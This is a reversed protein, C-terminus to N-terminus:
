AAAAGEVSAEFQAAPLFITFETGQGPQSKVEIRGGHDAIIGHVVSLGLGTGEGVNKTTFFPDFIREKTEADMGCGTDVVRIRVFDGDQRRNSRPSAGSLNVTITGLASGIAQRANTVLNVIVQQLQGADAFVLPVDEIEESILVTAPITPRLMQLAQRITSALDVKTKAAKQNRSFALIRQVLDRGHRSAQVVTELDDRESSGEPMQQMLLQSLALIPMLTNNLDHAIGGALTGLAELKQSHLLQRELETQREEAERAETVDRITGIRRVPNGDDDFITEIETYIWKTSGDHCRFRYTLPSAQLGQESATMSAEYGARDDPHIRPLFEQKTPAPMQPDFGFIRYFEESGSVEGTRFDRNFSGIKALRQARNLNDRSQRLQDETLKMQTIDIHLAAIGGNQMRRLSIMVYRGDALPQEIVGSPRNFTNMRNALWEPECGVADAYWGADLGAWLIEEFPTGPVMLRAAKPYLRRYPENCMVFCDNRDYIVFGESISDVADRLTAQIERLKQEAEKRLAIDAKLRDSAAQFKDREDALAIEHSTRYRIERILYAALGAVLFTALCAIAAIVRAHERSSALAEALDSGVTVVLPYNGVRRYSFLRTVHDIISEKIFSGEGNAPIVGTWPHEVMQGIGALGHPDQRTFRARVIDDLGVLSISGRPGLDISTNLTTLNAPSLAFTIVGLFSGDEADVRRTVNITTQHSVRGTVPKGIFIGQFRGDLHIRFHERDSLDIPEPVPDLTTSVLRGDPGIIGAQLTAKSLLPIERAWAHIDFDGRTTRMRQAVIEMADAVGDLIQTLEDAFAAALNRGESRARDMAAERATTISAAVTTWMALIVISGVAVIEITTARCRRHPDTTFLISM